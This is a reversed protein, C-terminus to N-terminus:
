TSAPAAHADCGLRAFSVRVCKQVAYPIEFSGPVTEVVINSEKVGSERLKQITGAVLAEIVSKNWRAHVIAVRLASGDLKGAVSKDVGKISSAM